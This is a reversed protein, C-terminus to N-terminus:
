EADSDSRKPIAMARGGPRSDRSLPNTPWPKARYEATNNFGDNDPDDASGNPPSADNPNLAYIIEYWNSLRDMDRDDFYVEYGDWLGDKDTDNSNPDTTNELMGDGDCDIGLLYEEYNCFSENEWLPDLKGDGNFDIFVLTYIGQYKKLSYNVGDNDKDNFRDEPDLPNLNFKGTVNDYGSYMVEWGDPMGDGDCDPNTPDLRGYPYKMEALNDMGDLDSDGSIESIILPHLSSAGGTPNLPNTAPGIPLVTPYPDLDDNIGDVDTDNSKPNTRYLNDDWFGKLEEMAWGLWEQLNTWNDGYPVGSIQDYTCDPNATPDIGITGFYMKEWWDAIGNKDTDVAYPSYLPLHDEFDKIGDMDEDDKTPNTNYIYEDLNAFGDNDGDGLADSSDDPNLKYLVEWWDPMFDYDSDSYLPQTLLLPHGFEDVYLENGDKIGNGKTDPRHVNIASDPDNPDTRHTYEQLNNFGDLDLDEMNDPIENEDTDWKTPELKYYGYEREWKTPLGDFDLDSFDFEYGDDLGDRDSDPHKPDTSERRATKPLFDIYAEDGDSLGDDDTDEDLPYTKVIKNEFLGTSVNILLLQIGNVEVSDIIDDHDTDKDLPNTTQIGRIHPMRDIKRLQIAIRKLNESLTPLYGEFIKDDPDTIKHENLATEFYISAVTIIEEADTLNDGDTDPNSANTKFIQTEMYDNLDYEKFKGELVDKKNMFIEDPGAINNGDEDDIFDDKDTDPDTACTYYKEIKLNVKATFGIVIEQYDDLLDSDTDKNTPDTSNWYEHLNLLAENDFDLFADKPDIPSMGGAEYRVEWGDPMGDDDTDWKTPDTKKRYEDINVLLDPRSAGLYKDSDYFRDAPDLPNCVARYFIEWGDSMGDGDTDLNIPSTSFLLIEDFDRASKIADMVERTGLPHSFDGRFADDDTDPNSPDTGYFFLKPDVNQILLDALNMPLNEDFRLLYEDRNSGFEGRRGGKEAEIKDGDFDLEGDPFTPDIAVRWVWKYGKGGCITENFDHYGESYHAEWGDSMGDGDTDWNGPDSENLKCDGDFDERALYEMINTFREGGRVLIRYTPYGGEGIREVFLGQIDVFDSEVIDTTNPDDERLMIPRSGLGDIEIIMKQGVVPEKDEVAIEIREKIKEGFGRKYSENDIVKVSSLRVWKNLKEGPTTLLKNVDTLEYDSHPPVVLSSLVVKDDCSPKKEGECSEVIGDHDYDYGDNDPDDYADGGYTPDLFWKGTTENKKQWRVEWSDDMGDYDTDPDNPNTGYNYNEDIDPLGDRDTDLKYPDFSPDPKDKAINWSIHKTIGEERGLGVASILAILLLIIALTSILGIIAREILLIPDMRKIKRIVGRM